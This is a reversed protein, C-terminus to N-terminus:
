KCPFYKNVEEIIIHLEFKQSGVIQINRFIKYHRGFSNEKKTESSLELINSSHWLINTIAPNIVGRLM